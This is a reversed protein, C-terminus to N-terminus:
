RREQPREFLLADGAFVDQDEDGGAQVPRVLPGLQFLHDALLDRRVVADLIM